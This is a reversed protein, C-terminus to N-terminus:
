AATDTPIWGALAERVITSLASGWDPETTWPLYHFEQGGAGLFAGRNQGDIEELTELCDAAFGPSRTRGIPHRAFTV